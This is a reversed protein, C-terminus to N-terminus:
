ETNSVATYAQVLVGARLMLLFLGIGAVILGAIKHDTIFLPITGFEVGQNKFGMVLISNALRNITFEIGAAGGGGEGLLLTQQDAEEGTIIRSFMSEQSIAGFTFLAAILALDILILPLCLRFIQYKTQWVSSWAHSFIEGLSSHRTMLDCITFFSWAQMFFLLLLGAATVGSVLLVKLVVAPVVVILPGMVSLLLFYLSFLLLPVVKLALLQPIYSVATMVADVFGSPKGEANQLFGYILATEAVIAIGVFLFVWFNLRTTFPNYALVARIDGLIAILAILWFYPHKFIAALANQYVPKIPM